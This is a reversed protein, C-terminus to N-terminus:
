CKKKVAKHGQKNGLQPKRHSERGREELDVKQGDQEFSKPPSSLMTLNPTSCAKPAPPQFPLYTRSLVQLSPMPLPLLPISSNLFSLEDEDHLNNYCSPFITFSENKPQYDEAQPPLKEILTTATKKHPHFPTPRMRSTAATKQHHHFLAPRMRSTAATKQYHHFLAPRMRSTAATKHHHHILAPRM